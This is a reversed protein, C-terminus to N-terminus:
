YKESWGTALLSPNRAIWSRKGLCCAGSYQGRRYPQPLHRPSSFCPLTTITISIYKSM